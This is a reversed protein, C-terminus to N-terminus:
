GAADLMNEIFIGYGRCPDNILVHTVAGVLKGNQIIPSGSMGQVIGGTKEILEQDTVVVTFSRNDRSDYRIDEICVTYEEPEGEDLTCRITAEGATLEERKGISYPSETKLEEPIQTLVGYVGCETNELLVGAKESSFYGKLEGPTGAMGKTIGTIEVEVVNGKQIELIEGTESDCIGHGLAAFECTTPDIYTVTGIGATTDRIWMGTRRKGDGTALPQFRFTEETGNREVTIEIEEKSKEVMKMVDATTEVTKGNVHTIIDNVRLGADYAPTRVGSETEYGSFGVVMVGGAMFKVGFPVGGAILTAEAASVGPTTLVLVAATMLVTIKQKNIKM